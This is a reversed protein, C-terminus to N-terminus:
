AAKSVFAATQPLSSFFESLEVAPLPDMAELKVGFETGNVWCVVARSVPVVGAAGPLTLEMSVAMGLRLGGQGRVRWGERTMDVVLGEGNQGTVCYRVPCHVAYRHRRRVYQFYAPITESVYADRFERKSVSHSSDGAIRTLGRRWNVDTSWAALYTAAMALGMIGLLEFVSM